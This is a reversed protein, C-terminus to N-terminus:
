EIRTLTGTVRFPAGNFEIFYKKDAKYYSLDYTKTKGAEVTFRAIETDIITGRRYIIVQVDNRKIGKKRLTCALKDTLEDLKAYTMKENEFILAIDNPVQKAKHTILKYNGPAGARIKYAVREGYREGSKKLMDKLDTIEMFERM